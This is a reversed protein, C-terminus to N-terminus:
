CDSLDRAIADATALGEPTLVLRNEELVALGGSILRDLMAPRTRELDVGFERHYAEIDVGRTTRLGLFLRELAREGPELSEFAATPSEGEDLAEIYDVVRRHNWSRVPDRFSHASPGLGLYPDGEWYKRNHRSQIVEARAFSSVEYQAFGHKELGRRTLLFLDRAEEEGIEEIEGRDRRRTLPTGDEFTLMYASVHEPGLRAFQDIQSSLHDRDRDPLGYILDVTINSFGARRAAHFSDETDRVTHSRGLFLLDVDDLSQVGLSLRNFGAELLQACDAEDLDGPNVEMTIESDVDVDFRDRLTRLIRVLEEAGIASPTGGGFYVTDFRCQWSEAQQEVEKNLADQWRAQLDMRTTIAFDCFPCHRRCFPVHVYLGADHLM